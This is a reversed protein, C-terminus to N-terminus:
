DGGLAAGIHFVLGTYEALWVMDALQSLSVLAPPQGSSSRTSVPCAPPRTPRLRHATAKWQPYCGRIMHSCGGASTSITARPPLRLVGTCRCSRASGRPTAPRRNCDSPPELAQSASCGAPSGKTAKTPSGAPRLSRAHGGAGAAKTKEETSAGPHLWVTTSVTFARTPRGPDSPM